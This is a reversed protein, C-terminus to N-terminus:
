QEDRRLKMEAFKLSYYLGRWTSWVVGDPFGNHVPTYTGSTYYIGNLNAHMCSHFWWGGRHHRACNSYWADNDRDRASFQQGNHDNLYAGLFSNGATGSYLLALLTYNSVSDGVSFHGYQAYTSNGEFDQLDIRLQTNTASATLRHIKELGLWVDHSANGFGQQYDIWYRDFNVLGTERRQFVTWGGGDTDMDCYVQFDPQHDPKITYVGSTTQGKTLADKCDRYVGSHYVIPQM